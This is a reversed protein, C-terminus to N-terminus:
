LNRRIVLFSRVAERGIRFIRKMNITNTGGQRPRFTIPIYRIRFRRKALIVTLLVNALFFDEPIRELAQALADRRILRYPTNADRTKVGFILRIVLRLTGSVFVRGIGDKRASRWGIVMDYDERAVWFPGFESPLTQGDSDTQFIYDAGHDLAYRYGFRVTPGHGSNPKSIVEMLPREAAMERLIDVTSDRSGDDIVVLRSRGEGSHLCVVPYWDSVVSRINAEENYAPIVIYLCDKQERNETTM